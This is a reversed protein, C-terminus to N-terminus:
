ELSPWKPPRKEKFALLGEQFDPTEFVEGRVRRALQSAQEWNRGRIGQVFRM